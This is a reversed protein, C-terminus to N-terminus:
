ITIIPMKINKINKNHKKHKTMKHKWDIGSSIQVPARIKEGAMWESFHFASFQVSNYNNGQKSKLNECNKGQYNKFINKEESQKAGKKMQQEAAWIERPWESVLNVVLSLYREMLPVFIKLWIVFVKSRGNKKEVHCLNTKVHYLFSAIKQMNNPWVPARKIQCQYWNQLLCSPFFDDLFIQGSSKKSLPITLGLYWPIWSIMTHFVRWKNFYSHWQWWEVLVLVNAMQRFTPEWGIM